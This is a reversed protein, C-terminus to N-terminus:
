DETPAPSVHTHAVIFIFEECISLIEEHTLQSEGQRHKRLLDSIWRAKAKFGRLTATGETVRPFYNALVWMARVLEDETKARRTFVEPPPEGMAGQAISLIRESRKRSRVRELEQKLWESGQSIRAKTKPDIERIKRILIVAEQTDDFTRLLRDKDWSKRAPTDPDLKLIQKLIDSKLM